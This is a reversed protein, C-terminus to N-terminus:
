YQLCQKEASFKEIKANHNKLHNFANKVQYGVINPIRLAVWQM